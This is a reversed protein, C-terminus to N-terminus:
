LGSDRKFRGNVAMKSRAFANYLAFKGPIVVIITIAAVIATEVIKLRAAMFAPIAPVGGVIIGCMAAPFGTIIKRSRFVEGPM